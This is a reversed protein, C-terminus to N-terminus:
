GPKSVTFALSRLTCTSRMRSTSAHRAEVEEWASTSTAAVSVAARRPLGQRRAAWADVSRDGAADAGGM